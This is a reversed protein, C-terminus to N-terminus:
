GGAGSEICYLFRNSRLFLQKGTVAPTGNFDTDDDALKNQGLLTFTPAAQMVFTGNRRSTAYLHGDALVVSAYFPKGGTVGPLREKYVLTGTKAELCIASGQDSVVYLHGPLGSPFPRLLREPQVVACQNAHRRGEWGRARRHHGAAPLGSPDTGSFNMLSYLEKITPLRWDSYGGYNTANLIAPRLQANAWSFKDSATISGDGSTDPSRQWTPGTRNDYVTLGDGSLTYSPQIGTCQADQGYFPQGASPATMNTTNNYCRTQGTDVVAYAGPSPAASVTIYGARTLPNSGGAGFVTLSM